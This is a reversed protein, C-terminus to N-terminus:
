VRKMPTERNEIYFNHRGIKVTFTYASPNGWSKPFEKLSDAYYMTAGQTPDNNGLGRLVDLAIAQATIWQPDAGSAYLNLQPDGIATMSSFQWPEMVVATPTMGRQACRNRIVNSVAAMGTAGEGRAERWLCVATAYVDGPTFKM